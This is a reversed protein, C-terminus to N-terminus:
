KRRRSVKEGLPELQSLWCWWCPEKRSFRLKGTGAAQEHVPRSCSVVAQQRVNLRVNLM